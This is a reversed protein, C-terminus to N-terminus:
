QAIDVLLGEVDSKKSTAFERVLGGNQFGAFYPLDNIKFAKKVDISEEVDIDIFTIAEFREDEKYREITPALLKCVGCWGAHFRIFLKPQAKIELILQELQM